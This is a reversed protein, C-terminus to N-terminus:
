SLFFRFIIKKLPKQNYFPCYDVLVHIMSAFSYSATYSNMSLSFDASTCLLDAPCCLHSAEQIWWGWQSENEEEMSSHMEKESICAIKHVLVEEGSLICVVSAVAMNFLHSHFAKLSMLKNSVEMNIAANTGRLISSSLIEQTAPIPLLQKEKRLIM